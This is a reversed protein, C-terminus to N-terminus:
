RTDSKLRKLPRIGSNARSLAQDPAPMTAEATVVALVQELTTWENSGLRRIQLMPPLLGMNYWELVRASEFPGFQMGSFDTYEWLKPAPPPARPVAAFRASLGVGAGNVKLGSPFAAGGSAPDSRNKIAPGVTFFFDIDKFARAYDQITNVTVFAYHNVTGAKLQINSVGINFLQLFAELQANQWLPPLGGIFITLAQTSQPGAPLEM